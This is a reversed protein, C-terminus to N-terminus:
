AKDKWPMEVPSGGILTIILDKRVSLLADILMDQEYPLVMDSRDFGESDIDHNLGGVFIVLDADKAAEVAQAFLTKNKEHIEAKEKEIQALREEEGKRQM